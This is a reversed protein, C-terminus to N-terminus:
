AYPEPHLILKRTLIGYATFQMDRKIAGPLGNEGNVVRGQNRPVSQM